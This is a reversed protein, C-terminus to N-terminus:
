VHLAGMGAAELWCSGTDKNDKEPSKLITLIAIRQLWGGIQPTVFVRYHSAIM